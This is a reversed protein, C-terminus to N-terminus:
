LIEGKKVNIIKGNPLNDKVEEVLETTTLFIQLKDLSSVLYKQRESDLESMVDDLLLIPTEEKEEIILNIEALKLALAATRQQGQSGYKKADINNVMVKLDDKHPGRSTNKYIMDQSESKKLANLFNEEIKNVDEDVPINSIYKIDISEKKNTIESHLKKSINNLKKVFNVREKIIKAGHNALQVNFVDLMQIDINSEKLYTNRQMLVKKYSSLNNYYSIKLQCLERDLFNRRKSPDEKIIKLDEPSFIVTLINEMLESLKKVTVGDVKIAKKGANNIAIEVSRDEDYKNYFTTIRCMEKDFKITEKDKSTRFSKGMSSIYIAEILNTKGQANEGLIINVNKDFELEIEKYNRYNELKIKKIYM